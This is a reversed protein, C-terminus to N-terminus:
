DTQNDGTVTTDVKRVKLKKSGTTTNSGRKRTETDNKPKRPPFFMDILDREEEEDETDSVYTRRSKKETAVPVAAATAATPKMPSFLKAYTEQHYFKIEDCLMPWHSKSFTLGRKCPHHENNVWFWKRLHILCMSKAEEQTGKKFMYQKAPFTYTTVHIYWDKNLMWKGKKNAEVCASVEELVGVLKKFAAEPIDIEEDKIAHYIYVNEHADAKIYFPNMENAMATKSSVKNTM